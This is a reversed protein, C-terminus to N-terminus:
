SEWLSFELEDDFIGHYTEDENNVDLANHEMKQLCDFWFFSTVLSMNDDLEMQHREGSARIEEMNEEDMAVHMSGSAQTTTSSKTTNMTTSVEEGQSQSIGIL